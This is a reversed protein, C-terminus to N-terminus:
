QEFLFQYAAHGSSNPHFSYPIRLGDLGNFYPLRTCLEHGTFPSNSALPDYYQLWSRNMAAVTNRIKQDLQVVLSRATGVEQSSFSFTGSDILTQIQEDTLNVSRGIGYVAGISDTEGSHAAQVVTALYQMWGETVACGSLPLLQPYGGVKVTANPAVAHIADYTKQLSAGLLSIRDFFPLYVDPQSCDLFLCYVVFDKFGVDNGGITITVFKTSTNLVDIQPGEKYLGGNLVNQTTAGSCAVFTNRGNVTTLKWGTVPSGDLLQAYAGNSRHCKDEVTDTGAIFPPVGEGSSYSDGLAAYNQSAVAPSIITGRPYDMQLGPVKFAYLRATGTDCNNATTCRVAPVYWVGHSISAQFYNGGYWDYGNGSSTSHDGGLEYSSVVMGTTGSIIQFQMAPFIYSTGNADLRYRLRRQLAVNGNLDVAFVTGVDTVTSDSSSIRSTWLQAGGSSLALLNQVRPNGPIGGQPSDYHIIAGGTYSPRIEYVHSCAPLSNYGWARGSPGYAYIGGVVQTDNGCLQQNAPITGVAVVLRGAPTADQYEQYVNSLVNTITVPAGVTGAYSVYQVGTATRLVLGSNYPAIGGDMVDSAVPVNLVVTPTNSGSAAAPKFGIVSSQGNCSALVYVNGNTGVVMGRVTAQCTFGYTWKVAGSTIAEIFPWGNGATVLTFLTGDKAVAANRACTSPYPVTNPINQSVVGAASIRKTGTTGGSCGVTVSGDLQSLLYGPNSMDTLPVPAYQTSPISDASAPLSPVVFFTGVVVAALVGVRLSLRRIM